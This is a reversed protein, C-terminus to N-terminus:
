ALKMICDIALVIWLNGVMPMGHSTFDDTSFKHLCYFWWWDSLKRSNLRCVEQVRENELGLSSTYRSVYLESCAATYINTM